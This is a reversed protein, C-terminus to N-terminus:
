ELIINYQLIVEILVPSSEKKKVIGRIGSPVECHEFVFGPCDDIGALIDFIKYTHLISRKWTKSNNDHM